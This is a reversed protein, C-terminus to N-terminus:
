YKEVELMSKAAMNVNKSFSSDNKWSTLRQKWDNCIRYEVITNYLLLEAMMREYYPVTGWESNNECITKLKIFYGVINKNIM